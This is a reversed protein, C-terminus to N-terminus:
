QLKFTKVIFVAMQGRTNPNTPCYLPPSAQCGGTIQETALQEIWNAFTSPCAVDNFMGTCTPPTYTSGHETKLLFVAMQDRRVPNQPCYNNGGCGGTIGETALDEIWDAFTSPCPVDDFVGTCSPPVYCIGHKAKLLFVAMQQRKTNDNVGYLGGGIGVTIANAVLTTVYSYFGNAPPVDLFDAVFGYKLTGAIGDPDTVTVDNVTGPPLAPTTATITTQDPSAVVNTAPQGGITVIAKSEFNTGHLEVATGGTALGATPLIAYVIRPSLESTNGGPDTATATVVDTADIAVPVMVDFSVFCDSATTVVASGLYVHAEYYDHPRPLCQPNGYFDLTFQTSATSNLIGTIHTGGGEPVASTVIPYNQLNNFGNDSDCPDNPTPGDDALDIAIQPHFGFYPAEGFIANGRMTVATETGFGYVTVGNGRNFAIMNGEGANGGGITANTTGNLYVGGFDASGVIFGNGLALTGTVDTGIFNGQIVHGTGNDAMIGSQGNGSIVNGAGVASGGITAGAANNLLVGPGGLNPIATTGTVDTGIYNGQIIATTSGGGFSIGFQTSGSILNGAGSLTGGIMVTGATSNVGNQNVIAQTGTADTGIFNGQITTQSAALITIAGGPHGSIVNRDAPATGGITNNSPSTNFVFIGTTGNSGPLGVTGAPDTGLFNGSVTSSGSELSIERSYWHDLVLGRIKSGDSGTGLIFGDAM